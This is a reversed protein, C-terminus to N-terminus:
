SKGSKELRSENKPTSKEWSLSDRNKGSEMYAPVLEKTLSVLVWSALYTGGIPAEVHYRNYIYCYPVVM